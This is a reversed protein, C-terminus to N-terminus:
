KFGDPAVEPACAAWRIVAYSRRTCFSQVVRASTQCIGASVANYIPNLSLLFQHVDLDGVAGLSVVQGLGGTQLGRDLVLVADGGRELRAVAADELDGDVTLEDVVLVDGVAEGGVLFNEVLDVDEFLLGSAGSWSM